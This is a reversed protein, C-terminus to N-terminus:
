LPVSLGDGRGSVLSKMVPSPLEADLHAHGRPGRQVQSSFTEGFSLCSEQCLFNSWVRQCRKVRCLTDIGWLHIHRVPRWCWLSISHVYHPLHRHRGPRQRFLLGFVKGECLEICIQCFCTHFTTWCSRVGTYIAEPRLGGADFFM